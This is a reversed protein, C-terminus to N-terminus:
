TQVSRRWGCWVLKGEEEGKLDTALVKTIMGNLSGISCQGIIRGGGLHSQCHGRHLTPRILTVLRAAHCEGGGLTLYCM